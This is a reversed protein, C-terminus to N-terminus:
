ARMKRAETDEARPTSSPFLLAFLSSLPHALSLTADASLGIVSGDAPAQVCVAVQQM